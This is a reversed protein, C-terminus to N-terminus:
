SSIHVPTVLCLVFTYNHNYTHDHTNALDCQKKQYGATAKGSVLRSRSWLLLIPWPLARFYLSLWTGPHYYCVCVNDHSMLLMTMHSVNRIANAMNRGLTVHYDEDPPTSNTFAWPRLLLQGYSHFDISGVIPSNRRFNNIIHQTELESKAHQGGYDEASPM